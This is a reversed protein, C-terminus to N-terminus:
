PLCNFTITKFLDIFFLFWPASLKRHGDINGENPDVECACNSYRKKYRSKIKSVGMLCSDVVVYVIDIWVECHDM